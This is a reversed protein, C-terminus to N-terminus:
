RPRKWCTFRAIGEAAQAAAFTAADFGPLLALRALLPAAGETDAPIACGGRGDKPILVIVPNAPTATDHTTLIGVEDLDEWKVSEAVGDARTRSVRIDDFVVKGSGDRRRFTTTLAM